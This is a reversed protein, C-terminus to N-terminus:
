RREVADMAGALKELRGAPLARELIEFLVREEFRVHAALLNGLSRAFAVRDDSAAIAALGERIVVHDGGMREVAAAWELDGPLLAPVLCQEEARFHRDGEEKFYTRLRDVADTVTAEDARRLALAVDLAHQHDRSLPALAASRRL